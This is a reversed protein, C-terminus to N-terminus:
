VTVLGKLDGFKATGIGSVQRLEEVSRFAGHQTRYDVIRQALVPGVGPLQDLQAASATNLDLPVGGPSAAGSPAGPAIAPAPTADVGVLIQEGDVVRRALNLTGTRAGPRVGGAAKIADIVRAGAPLSVVGPRRVKGGVDVLVPSGSVAPPASATSLGPAPSSAGAPAARHAAPSVVAAPVPQAEPRSWWLYAGAVLAALLGVAALVRLGPAHPDLRVQRGPDRPSSRLAAGPPQPSVDDDSGFSQPPRFVDRLRDFATPDFSSM